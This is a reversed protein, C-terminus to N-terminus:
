GASQAAAVARRATAMAASPATGALVAVQAQSLEEWAVQALAVNPAPGSERAASAFGAVLPDAAARALSEAWAPQGVGAARILEMAATTALGRNLFDVAAERDRAFASLYVGQYSVPGAASGAPVDAYDPLPQAVVAIGAAAAARADALDGLYYGARGARFLALAKERDLKPDIDGAEVMDFLMRGALVSGPLGIGLDSAVFSGDGSRGFLYGGAASYFPYWARSDGGKGVPLAIPVAAKKAAVLKHGARAMSEISKPAKPALAYNRLLALGDGVLPMGYTAGGLLFSELSWRTFGAQWEGLGVPTVLGAGALEGADQSDGVFLDPGRGQPALRALEASLDATAVETVTVVVSTEGTYASGIERLAPVWQPDAWIQVTQTGGTASASQPPTAAPGCGTLAMVGALLLAVGRGMGAQPSGSPAACPRNGAALTVKGSM